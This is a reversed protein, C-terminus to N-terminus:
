EANYACCARFSLVNSIDHENVHNMGLDVLNIEILNLITIGESFIITYDM